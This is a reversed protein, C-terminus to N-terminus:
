AKRGNFFVDALHALEGFVSTETRSKATLKLVTTGEPVLFAISEGEM